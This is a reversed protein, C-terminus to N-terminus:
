NLIAHSGKCGITLMKSMYVAKDYDFVGKLGLIDDVVFQGDESIVRAAVRWRYIKGTRLSPVGGDLYSWVKVDVLYSGDAQVRTSGVVAGNIEGRENGGSFLGDEYFGPPKLIFPPVNGNPHQREWDADCANRTEFAKVLRKSLLPWIATKAAGYPVGLPHRAVVESYLKQVVDGPQPEQTASKGPHTALQLLIALILVRWQRPNTRNM